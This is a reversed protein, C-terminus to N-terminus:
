IPYNRLYSVRGGHKQGEDIKPGVGPFNPIRKIKQTNKTNPGVAMLRSVNIGALQNLKDYINRNRLEELFATM